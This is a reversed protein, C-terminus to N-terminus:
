GPGRAQPFVRVTEMIYDQYDRSPIVARQGRGALVLFIVLLASLVAQFVIGGLVGFVQTAWGVILDGIFFKRIAIIAMYGLIAFTLALMAILVRCGGRMEPHFNLCLDCNM